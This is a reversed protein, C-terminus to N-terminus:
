ASRVKERTKRVSMNKLHYLIDAVKVGQPCHEQCQYCTVCDWLMGPGLAMEDLGLGLCCMIQHPLLGLAKQPNEYSEVVPCVTTCNQCGFCYSFTSDVVEIEQDGKQGISVPNAPDSLEDFRGALAKRVSELPRAYDEASLTKRKLGRVLSLPSLLLPEPVGKRILDERVNLWLDKLRIGSPCVVTCRDCNTCLTVGEQIARLEERDLPKGAATKKLFVMKESPLIYENKAAEYAMMASCFRSCTGCHTCADLEMVQRTAINVPDSGVPDMVADALLSIPTSIVHFMKSFPLYALGIFCALIHIYYLYDSAKIRDIFLAAPSMLRGAAYGTFAWQPPSHCGMCNMENNERGLEITERSFPKSVNPSVLGFEKVWLSELARIDKKEDLDSYDEVMRAFESHSIMKAGELFIGSFLVIALIILVYRDMANTRFRPIARISRRCVAIAVGLIVILGFLDRLFFFPNVTPYYDRFLPEMIVGGLAHMLLLLTFGGYIMMHMVWRTVDEKLIRRQLIVDLFLAKLLLLIKKSFLVGFLGRLFRSIRHSFTNNAPPLGITRLFWTSIRYMSGLIFLALAIYLLLNFLM